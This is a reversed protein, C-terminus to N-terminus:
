GTLENWRLVVPFFVADSFLFTESPGKLGVVELKGRM